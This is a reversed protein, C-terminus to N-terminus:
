KRRRKKKWSLRKSNLSEFNEYYHSDSKGNRM